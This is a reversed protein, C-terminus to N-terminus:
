SPCPDWRWAARPSLFAGSFPRAGEIEMAKVRQLDRQATRDDPSPYGGFVVVAGSSRAVARASGLGAGDRFGEAAAAARDMAGGGSFARLVIAWPADGQTAGPRDSSGFVESFDERYAAAGGDDSACGLLATAALTVFLIHVFRRM